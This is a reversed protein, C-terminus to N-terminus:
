SLVPRLPEVFPNLNGAEPEEHSLRARPPASSVMRSAQALHRVSAVPDLKDDRIGTDAQGGFLLRFQELFERLCIGQDM